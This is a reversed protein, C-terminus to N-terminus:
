YNFEAERGVWDPPRVWSRDSLVSPWADLTLCHGLLGKSAGLIWIEALVPVLVAPRM